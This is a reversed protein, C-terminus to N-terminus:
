SRAREVRRTEFVGNPERAPRRTEDTRTARARAAGVITSPEFPRTKAEAAARACLDDALWRPLVVYGDRALAAALADVDDKLHAAM